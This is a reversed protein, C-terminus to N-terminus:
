ETTAEASLPAGRGSTAWDGESCTPAFAAIVAVLVAVVFIAPALTILKYL